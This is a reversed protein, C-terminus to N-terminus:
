ILQNEFNSNQRSLDIAILKYHTRFYEFNFENRTRFYGDRVLETIAKYTEEKNRIPIEYFPETRNLIVNYDKIEVTPTYYKSFSNRDEESPFDLVFLRNLNNFTPGILYILSNTAAQNIVQSRYRNWTFDISIGIKLQEYLKNQYETQLTAVPVYM